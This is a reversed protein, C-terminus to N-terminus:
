PRPIIVHKYRVGRISVLSNNVAHYNIIFVRKYTVVLFSTPRYRKRPNTNEQASYTESRQEKELATGREDCLHDREM